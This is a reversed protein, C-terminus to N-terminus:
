NACCVLARPHCLSIQSRRPSASSAGMGLGAALILAGAHHSEASPCLGSRNSFSEIGDSPVAGAPAAAPRPLVRNLRSIIRDASEDSLKTVSVGTIGTPGYRDDRGDQGLRSVPLELMQLNCDEKSDPLSGLKGM